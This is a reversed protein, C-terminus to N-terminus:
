LWRINPPDIGLAQTSTPPQKEYKQWAQLIIGSFEAASTEIVQVNERLHVPSTPLPIIRLQLSSKGTRLSYPTQWKPSMLPMNQLHFGVFSNWSCWKMRINHFFIEKEVVRWDPQPNNEGFLNDFIVKTLKTTYFDFVTTASSLCQLETYCWVYESVAAPPGRSM